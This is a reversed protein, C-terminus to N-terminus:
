NKTARFAAVATPMTPFIHNLGIRDVLGVKQLDEFLEHKVRALVLVVQQTELTARLDELADAATLDIDVNAEANLLFWRPLEEHHAEARRQQEALAGLARVRFDEANAFFLPSDYRFVVLGPETIADSFDELDHMGALNPVFGLVAAHPRAVRWLMLAVSLGVAVLVGYLINFLLVGLVAIVAIAFETRSFRWLRGFEKWEILRWAAYVVIAGLAATPFAALAPRFFILIAIVAVWTFLSNLQTKSGSQEGIVTRSASSSVPFSQLFGAGINAAGLALFEQNADITHGARRSFARATLVNDTYAVIAVGIAPFFMSSATSSSISPIAFTPLGEPIEGIVAIGHQSLDFVAVVVASVVVAILPIPLRPAFKALLVMFLLVGSALAFTPWSWQARNNWLSSMEDVFTTGTATIGTLKSLQTLMLIVAVGAMYGVLVPRSFLDALVGLRLAWAGLCLAGVILALTAALTAYRGPDGLALPAVVSAALLATTSEPGVSLQRSSGLLAYIPLSALVAWLGVVPPLGAIQAYAMVQPVLYATVTLGAIIDGRLWSRQYHRM